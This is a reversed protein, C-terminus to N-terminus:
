APSRVYEKWRQLQSEYDDALDLGHRACYERVCRDLVDVVCRTKRQRRKRDKRSTKRNWSM